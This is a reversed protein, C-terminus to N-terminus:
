PSTKSKKRNRGILFGVILGLLAAIGGVTLATRKLALSLIANDFADVSAHWSTLLWKDGRKAMTATFRSNFPLVRGDNLTFVDNLLGWSMAWDNYIHRGSVEPKATVHKVVPREGKMMREHYARVEAKGKSVEGNQWTVVINTDLYGLLGELDGANFTKVLGERMANIAEEPALSAPVANTQARAPLIMGTAIM